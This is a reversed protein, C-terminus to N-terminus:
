AECGCPGDNLDRGCSVCLGKCEESCLVKSPISLLLSDRFAEDPVISSGDFFYVDEAGDSVESIDIRETQRFVAEVEAHPDFAIQRGCRGCISRVESRLRGTLVCTGADRVQVRGEFIVPGSLDCEDQSIGIDASDFKLTVDLYSGQQKAIPRIDIRMVCRRLSAQTNHLLVFDNDIPSFPSPGEKRTNSRLSPGDGNGLNKMQYTVWIGSIIGASLDALPMSYFIGYLGFFRPLIVILPILILLQRSLTIITAQKPKGIAQFFGSSIVQVGVIPLLLMFIQVVRAGLAILERDDSNFLMVLQEPFLRTMLFGATVFLTAIVMGTKVASRVRDYNMAGYNYGIIPQVGQNLGFVPMMILNSVSFAIGMASLAIDGGYFVLSHNLVIMLASAALQMLFPPTGLSLIKLVIRRDLRFDSPGPRLDNRRGLIYFLVWVASALMSLITALAAGKMGWEFVFIFIPDLVVNILAGVIMTTMAIKPSGLARIQNNMGFGMAQFIAGIMIISLYDQAYPLVDASAGFAKLLPTLFVSGLVSIIVAGSLLLVMSNGTIKKAEDRKKEGLRISMLSTSGFGILMGFAMMILMVPFSVTIGAIGLHGIKNGIYIRDVTNYLANVLMGVIAPVSFKVILPFLKSEGLLKDRDM